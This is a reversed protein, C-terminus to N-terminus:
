PLYVTSLFTKHKKEITNERLVTSRYTELTLTIQIYNMSDGLYLINTWLQGLIPTNNRIMFYRFKLKNIFLIYALNYESNNDAM